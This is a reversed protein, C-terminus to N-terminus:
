KVNLRMARRQEHSTHTRLLNSQSELERRERSPASLCNGILAAMIVSGGFVLGYEFQTRTAM